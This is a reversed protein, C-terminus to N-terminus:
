PIFGKHSHSFVVPFLAWACEGRETTDSREVVAVM